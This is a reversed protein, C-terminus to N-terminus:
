PSIYVTTWKQYIKLGKFSVYNLNNTLMENPCFGEIYAIDMGMM